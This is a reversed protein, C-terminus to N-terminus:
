DGLVFCLTHSMVEGVVFNLSSLGYANLELLNLADHLDRLKWAIDTIEAGIEEKGNANTRYQVERALLHFDLRRQGILYVGTGNEVSLVQEILNKSGKAEEELQETLSMINKPLALPNVLAMVSLSCGIRLMGCTGEVVSRAFLLGLGSVATSGVKLFNFFAFVLTFLPYVVAIACCCSVLMALLILLIRIINFNPVPQLANPLFGM